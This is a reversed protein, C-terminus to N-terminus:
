RWFLSCCNAKRYNVAFRDFFGVASFERPFESKYAAHDEILFLETLMRFGARTVSFYAPMKPRANVRVLVILPLPPSCTSTPDAIGIALKRSMRSDRAIASRKALALKNVDGPALRRMAALFRSIPAASSPAAFPM